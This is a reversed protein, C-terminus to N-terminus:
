NRYGKLLRRILSDGTIGKRVMVFFSQTQGKIEQRIYLERDELEPYDPVSVQELLFGQESIFPKIRKIYVFKLDPHVEQYTGDKTGGIFLYNM